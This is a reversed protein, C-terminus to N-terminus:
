VPRVNSAAASSGASNSASVVIQLAFGRDSDAVIYTSTTAGAIDACGHGVNDCRRWQYGYTIPTTGTWTGNSATMAHGVAGSGSLTPPSTNTPATTPGPTTTSTSSTSSTTSSSTSTTSPTPHGSTTSTTSSTSTTSTTSSTSTTTAPGVLRVRDNSEDAILVAGASTIAVAKPTNLSASTAPGGDGGFAQAGNGAVTSITGGPSVLRVRQNYSDAIIFGGDATGTLNHPNNLAAAVAPGSDGAYGAAGNGAVTSMTGTPSIRRIRQNGTDVILIGGDASPGAGFPISLSAATAPGGDGTFGKTGNGAITTITGAPSVRRIRHNNTDPILFGGDAMAVVGRPNNIMANVAPGDDGGYGQTGNGAVTTIIGSASVKRIRNNLTDAILFGGDTTPSAGHVFNVRAQSAPGGDGSFGASGTGAATSIIGSSSVRRVLHSWPEAFIYGGGALAFVSRPRDINAQSAPGGDGSNGRFGTGAVTSIVNQAPAADAQAVALVTAIVLSGTLARLRRVRLRVIPESM